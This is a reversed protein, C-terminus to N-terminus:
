KLIKEIVFPEEKGYYTRILIEGLFGFMISLSGTIVFLVGLMLLPGLKLEGVLYAKIIQEVFILGSLLYQLFGFFGFLHLPRTSYTSWFKIYLLDLLGHLLRVFNYKTKGFRRSNHRVKVEGVKYGNMGVIAALYRHMEGYLRLDKVAERRYAKLTCGFDHLQVGTLKRAVWNSIRSPIVKTLFPDKRYYRWGSVVDYDKAMKILLPIDDPDNQLDCDMTIVVDGQAMRFGASIAATQGFNRRFRVCKVRKDNKNLKEVNAFTLDSSGDDVFIIEYDQGIKRMIEAVRRYVLFVNEEENYAPIVISIM